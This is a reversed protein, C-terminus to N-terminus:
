LQYQLIQVDVSEDQDLEVLLTPMYVYEEIDGFDTARTLLVTEAGAYSIYCQTYDELDVYTLTFGDLLAIEMEYLDM